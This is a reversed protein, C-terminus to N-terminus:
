MGCEKQWLTDLIEIVEQSYLNKEDDMRPDEHGFVRSWFVDITLNM